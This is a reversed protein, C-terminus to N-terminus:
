LRSAVIKKRVLEQSIRLHLIGGGKTSVQQISVNPRPPGLQKTTLKDKNTRRSFPAEELPRISNKCQVHLLFCILRDLPLIRCFYFISQVNSDILDPAIKMEGLVMQLM